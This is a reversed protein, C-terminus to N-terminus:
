VGDRRSATWRAGLRNLTEDDLHHHALPFLLGEEKAFHDGTLEVLRGLLPRLEEVSEASTVQDLAAEIEEHELRLVALPTPEHGLAQELAQFLLKEEIAAHAKLAAALLAGGSRAQELNWGSARRGVHDLLRDIVSHEGLLADTIRM